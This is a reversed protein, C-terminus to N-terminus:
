QHLFTPEVQAAQWRQPLDPRASAQCPVLLTALLYVAPALDSLTEDAVDDVLETAAM